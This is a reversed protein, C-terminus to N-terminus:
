SGVAAHAVLSPGTGLRKHLDARPQAIYDGDDVAAARVVVRGHLPMRLYARSHAVSNPTTAPVRASCSALTLPRSRHARQGRTSVASADKTSLVRHDGHVKRDSQRNVHHFPQSSRDRLAHSHLTRAHLLRSAEHRVESRRFGAVCGQRPGAGACCQRWRANPVDKTPGAGRATACAPSASACALGSTARCGRSGASRRLRRCSVRAQWSAAEM